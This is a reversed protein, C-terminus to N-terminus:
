SLRILRRRHTLAAVRLLALGQIGRKKVAGLVSLGLGLAAFVAGGRCDDNIDVLFVFNLFDKVELDVVTARLIVDFPCPVVVRCPFERLVMGVGRGDFYKM